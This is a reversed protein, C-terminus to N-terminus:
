IANKSKQNLKSLIQNIEIYINECDISDLDPIEAESMNDTAATDIVLDMLGLRRQFYNSYKSISQIKNIPIIIQKKFFVGKFIIIYENNFFYKFNNFYLHNYLYFVPVLSLILLGYFGVGFYLGISILLLLITIKITRRIIIKKSINYTEFTEDFNILRKIIDLIDFYKAFPVVMESGSQKSVDFGATDLFLSHYNFYQKIKNTKIQIMQIKKIPITSQISSLLGSKLLLKNNKLKLEFKYFKNFTVLFDMVWSIIFISLISTTIVLILGFTDLSDIYKSYSEEINDIENSGGFITIQNYINFVWFAVVLFIPRARLAAFKSLEKNTLEFIINNNESNNNIYNLTNTYNTNINQSTETNNDQTNVQTNVQIYDKNSESNFEFNTQNYSTNNNQESQYHTKYYTSLKNIQNKIIEANTFSLYNLVGETSSDGATEIKVAAIRFIKQLFNQSISINHIKNYPIHRSQKSLVGSNIVIENETLTYHFFYWRLIISPITFITIALIVVFFVAESTDKNVFILYFPILYNPLQMLAQYILTLPSLNYQQGIVFETRNDENINYDSTNNFDSKQEFEQNNTNNM